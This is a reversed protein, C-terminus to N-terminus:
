PADEEKKAVKLLRSSLIDLLDVGAYGGIGVIASKMSPTIASYDQIALYVIVGAFASTAIRCVTMFASGPIPRLIVRAFGGLLAMILPMDNQLSDLLSKLSM